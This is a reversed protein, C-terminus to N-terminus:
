GIQLVGKVRSLALEGANRDRDTVTRKSVTLAPVAPPEFSAGAMAEACVDAYAARWRPLMDRESSRRLEYLGLRRATEYIVAHTWRANAADRYAQDASPFGAARQCLDAFEPLHPPFKSGSRAALAIAQGILQPRISALFDSWLKSPEDGAQSCWASGYLETMRMWFRQAIESKRRDCSSATMPESSGTKERSETWSRNVSPLVTELTKM